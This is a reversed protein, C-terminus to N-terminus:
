AFQEVQNDEVKVGYGSSVACMVLPHIDDKKM